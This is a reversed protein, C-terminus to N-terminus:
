LLYTKRTKHVPIKRFDPFGMYISNLPFIAPPVLLASGLSHKNNPLPNPQAFGTIEKDFASNEPAAHMKVLPLLPDQIGM